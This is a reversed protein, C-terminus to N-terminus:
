RRVKLTSARTPPRAPNSFILKRRFQQVVDDRSTSLLDWIRSHPLPLVVRRDKLVAVIRAMLEETTCGHLARVFEEDDSGGFMADSRDIDRRLVHLTGALPRLVLVVGDDAIVPVPDRCASATSCGASAPDVDDDAPDADARVAKKATM